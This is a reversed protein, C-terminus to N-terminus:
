SGDNGNAQSAGQVWLWASNDVGSAPQSSYVTVGVDISTNETMYDYLQQYATSFNGTADSQNWAQGVLGETPTITGNAVGQMDISQWKAGFLVAMQDSTLKAM